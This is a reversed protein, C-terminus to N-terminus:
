AIRLRAVVQGDQHIELWGPEIDPSILLPIGLFPQLTYPSLEPSPKRDLFESLAELSSVKATKAAPIDAVLRSWRELDEIM